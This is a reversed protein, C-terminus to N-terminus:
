LIGKELRYPEMTHPLEKLVVILEKKLLYNKLLEVFFAKGIIVKELHSACM